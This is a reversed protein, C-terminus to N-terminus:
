RKEMKRFGFYILAICIGLGALAPIFISRGAEGGFVVSWTMKADIGRFKKSYLSGLFKLNEKGSLKEYLSPFEFDVGM